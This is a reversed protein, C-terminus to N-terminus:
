SWVTGRRVGPARDRESAFGFEVIRSRSIRRGWPGNTDKPIVARSAQAIVYWEENVSSTGSTNITAIGRCGSPACNNTGHFMPQGKGDLAINWLLASLYNQEISGIM